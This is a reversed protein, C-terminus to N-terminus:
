AAGGPEGEAHVLEVLRRAIVPDTEPAIGHGLNFIHGPRGGAEALVARAGAETADWGALLRAGDLNGQIGRGAVRAWAAALSQRSDIGIVDGGAEAMVELLGETGTGFHITAAGTVSRLIRRAHPAVYEKYDAASLSGAWSDFLQVAGAGNDIQAQLYDATVDALLALLAHWTAPEGYMLAKARAQDRSPRGEILYAALTFPGGALGIVAARGALAGRISGIAATVHRLEAAADIRRLRAVDAASRVPAEILPGEPTLELAVGMPVLPLMIDAFLVAADVGFADVPLLSAQACLEPTTAIEMVSHRERMQEYGPSARGAQRMFWIPTTDAPERRCAALFRREGTWALAPDPAPAAGAARAVTM